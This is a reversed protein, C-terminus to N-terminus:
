AQLLWALGAILALHVPYFWYFFWKSVHVHPMKIFSIILVVFVSFVAFVQLPSGDYAKLATALILLVVQGVPQKRLLYFGVPLFVGYLGYDTSPLILFFGALAIVFAFKNPRAWLMMIAYAMAFTAFINLHLASWPMGTVLTYPIQSILAFLVLYKLQLRRNSTFEFGVALQYAFLPFALRGIIRWTMEEPFFVLGIHDIIMFAVALLKIWTSQERTLTM